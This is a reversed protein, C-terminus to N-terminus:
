LRLRKGGWMTGNELERAGMLGRLSTVCIACSCIKCRHQLGEARIDDLSAPLLAPHFASPSALLWGGGV